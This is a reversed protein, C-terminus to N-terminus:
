TPIYIRRITMLAPLPLTLTGSSAPSTIKLELYNQIPEVLNIPDDSHKLEKCSCRSAFGEFGAETMFLEITTGCRWRAWCAKYLHRCHLGSAIHEAIQVARVRSRSSAFSLLVIASLSHDINKESNIIDGSFKPRIRRVAVQKVFYRLNAIRCATGQPRYFVM